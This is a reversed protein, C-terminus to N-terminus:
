KETTPELLRCKLGSWQGMHSRANSKKMHIKYMHIEIEIYIYVYKYIYLYIYIHIYTYM